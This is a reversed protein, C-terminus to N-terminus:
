PRSIRLRKAEQLAPLAMFYIVDGAAKVTEIYKHSNKEKINEFKPLEPLKSFISGEGPIFDGWIQKAQPKNSDGTEVEKGNFSSGNSGSIESLTHGNSSGVGRINAM